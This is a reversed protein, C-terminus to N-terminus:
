VLLLLILLLFLFLFRLIQLHELYFVEGELSWKMTEKGWNRGDERKWVCSGAGRGRGDM